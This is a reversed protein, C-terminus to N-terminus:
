YMLANCLLKLSQSHKKNLPYNEIRRRSVLISKIEEIICDSDFNVINRVISNRHTWSCYKTTSLLFVFGNIILQSRSHQATLFSFDFLLCLNLSVSPLSYVTLKFMLFM